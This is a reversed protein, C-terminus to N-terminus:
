APEAETATTSPAAPQLRGAILEPLLALADAFGGIARHPVGATRCHALLRDKAFVFDARASVCVDSQGDGILLVRAGDAADRTKATWACKCTGSGAICDAYAHPSSLKWGRTSVRQLRNAVVPLGDLGHRRLLYHIVHDLGDSVVSLEVGLAQARAVFAPFMPDITVRDLVAEIDQGSGDILAVQQAMCERSGIRGSRWDRELEKWDPHALQELLADTADPMCITGDFDCLIKWPRMDPERAFSMAAGYPRPREGGKGDVRFPRPGAPVRDVPEPLAHAAASAPRWPCTDYVYARHRHDLKAHVAIVDPWLPAIAVQLAGDELRRVMLGPPRQGHLDLAAARLEGAATIGAVRLSRIGLMALPGLRPFCWRWAVQPSSAPAEDFFSETPTAHALLRARGFRTQTWHALAADRKRDLEAPTLALVHRGHLARPRGHLWYALLRPPFTMGESAARLLLALASHDPHSDSLAPAAVLTPAFAALLQRLTEVSDAANEYLRRTLGQDRWHLFRVHAEDVGLGQLAARAEERRRAGWRAAAGSGLRLRREVVRQPWPNSDGDTAIAVFVEGGAALVRQILGACALSEDDPHPALVLLRDHPTFALSM